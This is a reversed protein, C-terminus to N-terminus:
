RKKKKEGREKRIRELLVGAPEWDKEARCAALEGETLLEGAFAKKLLSQRLSESKKLNTEIDAELQDCVSFRTEIEQVIQHQEELTPVPIVVGKLQTTNIRPRTAGHVLEILQDYTERSSLYYLLYMKSVSDGPRVCFCDAKNIAYKISKPVITVSIEGAIFSSFVIDGSYVTHRKIEEYKEKLVFSKKTEEFFLNKINELRIVRVGSDVYDSTKLKSGFPGDFLAEALQGVRMPVWSEVPLVDDSHEERDFKAIRGPKKTIRGQENWKKTEAEWELLQNAYFRERAEEIEGLLEAASPLGVQGERWERTLEGSFAQKLISQRYVKLQKKAQAFAAIGADLESFLTDLKTVIARQEPLPIIPFSSDRLIRQSINPQAGGIASKILSPKRHLLYYYTLEHSIEKNKFIGCVAQNTAAEVGLFALKGITAGYLAILLTGAPFLKASSKKLATETIKEETDRIIGLSLEGSKVWPIDGGSYLAKNKRSPTGGSSTEFIEGLKITIWENRNKM